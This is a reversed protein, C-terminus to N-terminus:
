AADDDYREQYHCIQGSAAILVHLTVVFTSLGFMAPRAFILMTTKTIFVGHVVDSVLSSTTLGVRCACLELSLLAAM